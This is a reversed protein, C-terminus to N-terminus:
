QPQSVRPLHFSRSTCMPGPSLYDQASRFTRVGTMLAIAGARQDGAFGDKIVHVKTGAAVVGPIDPAVTDTPPPQPVGRQGSNVASLVFVWTALVLSQRGWM